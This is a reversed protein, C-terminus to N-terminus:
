AGGAIGFPGGRDARRGGTSLILGYMCVVVVVAVAAPHISYRGGCNGGGGAV